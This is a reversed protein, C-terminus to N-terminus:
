RPFCPLCGQGPISESSCLIQMQWRRLPNCISEHARAGAPGLEKRGELM